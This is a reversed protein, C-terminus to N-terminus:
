NTLHDICRRMEVLKESVEISCFVFLVVSFYM